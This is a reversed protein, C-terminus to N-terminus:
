PLLWLIPHGYIDVGLAKGFSDWGYFPLFEWGGLFLLVVLCSVTFMNAYEAMFFMAFKMASYEAHYGIIESEGEPLDFPLRNTEAFMSTVFLLFGLPAYFIYWTHSQAAVIDGLKASGALVLISLIALSLPIEYSIMQAAGRLTGLLPYKSGSAWGGVIIGYVGLSAIALVFLVGVNLDAVQLPILAGDIRKAGFPVVAFSLIAPFISILPAM